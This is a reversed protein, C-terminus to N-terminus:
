QPGDAAQTIVRLHAGPRGVPAHDANGTLAGPFSNSSSVYACWLARAAGCSDALAAEVRLVRRWERLLPMRGGAGIRGAEPWKMPEIHPDAIM